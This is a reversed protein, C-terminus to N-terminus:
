DLWAWTERRIVNGVTMAHVNFARGIASYSATGKMARIQRVIEPTLKANWRQEGRPRTGHDLQETTNELPTRWRLHVRSCCAEHGKGCSHAAQHQPSPPEGHALTCIVRTASVLGTGSNMVAYGMNNRAFPWTLCDNSTWHLAVDNIFAAIAGPAAKRVLPGGVIGHRRMRVYHGQCLGRCNAPKICDPVSCMIPAPM